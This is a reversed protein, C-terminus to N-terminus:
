AAAAEPHDGLLEYLTSEWQAAIRDSGFRAVSSRSAKALDHRLDADSLLQDMAEALAAPDEPKVLLGNKGHDVIESPGYPCDFSVVPTGHALAEILVNGFGEYRSSLVFMSADALEPSIDSVLGPMQVRGELGLESIMRELKPRDPGEGLIKLDWQPNDRQIQNFAILLLDFGKQPTLRGMAIITPKRAEIDHVHEPLEVPNHIIHRRSADLWDFASDVGASVSILATAKPYLARRALKATMGLQFRNPDIHETIVVPADGSCMLATINSHELVGVVVDPETAKIQKCLEAFSGPLALATSKVHKPSLAQGAPQGTLNCRIRHVNPALEYFDPRDTTTAVWVEHGRTLLANSLVQVVREAGGSALSPVILVIRLRRDIM